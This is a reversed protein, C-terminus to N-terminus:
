RWYGYRWVPQFGAKRYLSRAPNPEEVQLFVRTIGRAAALRGFAALIRGAHGRGRHDAATRMGHVGMWGHGFSAVGVAVARGADRVVGYAAGPSRSLVKVRHAGDVPDFGPGLFVEGWAADPAELIEAGGDAFAALRAADGTKVLTPQGAALGAAALAARVPALSETDPIRFAAPLGRAAYADLIAPVAGASIEHRLPVASKARGITGNDFAVLWGDIELVEPPAVAAVTARELSEVLGAEM